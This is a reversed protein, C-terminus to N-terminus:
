VSNGWNDTKGAYWFGGTTYTRDINADYRPFLGEEMRRTKHKSESAEKKLRLIEGEQNNLRVELEELKTM